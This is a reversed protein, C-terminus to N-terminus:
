KLIKIKGILPLEKAKGTAANIIGLICFVSIVIMVLWILLMLPWPTYRYEFIGWPDSKKFPLMVIIFSFISGCISLLFTNFGQKVHYQAFPSQKAAFCPILWLLGLYALVAMLKNQTIDQPHFMATSDPTNMFSPTQVGYTNQNYGQYGQQPPINMQGQNNQQPEGNMPGSYNQQPQGNMAGQNYYQPQGNVQQGANFQQPQGYASGSNFQQPQGTTTGANYQATGVNNNGSIPNQCNPCAGAGEPIMTGCKSCFAM